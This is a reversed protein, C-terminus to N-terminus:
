KRIRALSAIIEAANAPADGTGLAARMERYGELQNDHGPRGPLIDGLERAVLDPTCMHVLMEPVIRKGAILNPLSVYPIKLLKEMIKYSFKVGNARYCVVQPTAMLACELTATGSTVLAVEAHLMLEFTDNDVIPTGPTLYYGYYSMDIGPAGAVVPQYDPYRAAAAEMVQLNNKIESRRSGPVLAIVPRDPLNHRRLFDARSSARSIREDVEKVSPNGVYVAEYDHRSRYFATEFPLICCMRDVYRRIQKVRWEKWAWVKPSIYYAVKIGREKAYRALKLNFSPYDVLVLVDPRFEDIARRARRMNAAIAPLHRLVESFGMFAMERYHIVPACGAAAAMLDGGLFAIRADTDAHRLAAILESAHLDGSPEGVSIFYKM